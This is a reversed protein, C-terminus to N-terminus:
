KWDNKHILIPRIHVSEYMTAALMAAERLETPTYINEANELMNYLTAVIAHFVPDNHYRDEAKTRREFM